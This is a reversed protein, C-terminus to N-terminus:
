KETGKLLAVYSEKFQKAASEQSYQHEIFLHGQTNAVKQTITEEICASLKEPDVLHINIGAKLCADAFPQYADLNSSVVPKNYYVAELLSASLQDTKPFNVCIDASSILQHMLSQDLRESIYTIYPSAYQKALQQFYGEDGNGLVIVLQPADGLCQKDILTLYSKIIAETQYHPATNRISLVRKSTGTRWYKSEGSHQALLQTNIGTHFCCIKEKSIGFKQQIKQEASESTVTILTAKRFVQKMMWNYLRSHEAFIESGYVMVIYRKGSLLASLGYGSAGHAHVKEHKGTFIRLYFGLFIYSLIKSLLFIRKTKLDSNGVDTNHVSFLSDLTLNASQYITFWTSLHVSSLNGLFHM